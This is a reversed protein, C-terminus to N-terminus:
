RCLSLRATSRPQAFRFASEHKRSFGLGHEEQGNNSYCGQRWLRDGLRNIRGGVIADNKYYAAHAAPVDQAGRRLPFQRPDADMMFDPVKGPRMSKTLREFIQLIRGM